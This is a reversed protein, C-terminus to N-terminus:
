RSAANSAGEQAALEGEAKKALGMMGMIASGCCVCCIICPIGIVVALVIAVIAGVPMKDGAGPGEVKVEELKFDIQENKFM